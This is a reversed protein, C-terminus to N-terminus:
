KELKYRILDVMNQLDYENIKEDMDNFYSQLADLRLEGDGEKMWRLISSNIKPHYHGTDKYNSINDVFPRNDYGFVHVNSYSKLLNLVSEIRYKYILYESPDYKKWLVHKIRSYPPFFLYFNVNPNEVVHNLLYNKIIKKDNNKIKMVRNENVSIANNKVTSVIKYLENKILPDGSYEIWNGIGGFRRKNVPDSYWENVRKIDNVVFPCKNHFILNNCFLYGAKNFGMYFKINNLLSEDYLYEPFLIDQRYKGFDGFVDLTMIVNKIDKKNLAYKLVKSRELILGGGISINVFNGGFVSSAEEASTNQTMSTGLIISDFEHTNIIGAAQNRMDKFYYKEHMWPKHFVMYPDNIFGLAIDVFFILTFYITARTLYTKYM